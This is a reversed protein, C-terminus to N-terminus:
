NGIRVFLTSFVLIISRHTFYGEFLRNDKQTMNQKVLIRHQLLYNDIRNSILQSINAVLPGCQDPLLHDSLGVASSIKCTLLVPSDNADPFNTNSSLVDKSKNTQSQVQESISFDKNNDHGSSVTTQGLVQENNIITHSKIQRSNTYEKDHDHGERVTTQGQFQESALVQFKPGSTILRSQDQDPSATTRHLVEETSLITQTVNVLNDTKNRNNKVTLAGKRKNYEEHQYQKRQSDNGNSKVEWTSLNNFNTLVTVSTM